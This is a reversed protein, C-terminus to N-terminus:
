SRAIEKDHPGASPAEDANRLVPTMAIGALAFTAGLCVWGITGNEIVLTSIVFPAVMQSFAFGTTFLGQYQGNQGSPALDISIVWGAASQIIEGYLHLGAAVLLLVGAGVGSVGNTLGTLVCTGLFLFGALRWSRRASDLTGIRRSASVQFLVCGVTNFLILVATMWHPASTYQVIWLPFGIDLMAFHIVMIMNVMTAAVYRRDRLVPLKSAGPKVPVAAIRPLAFLILGCILYSVANFGIVALYAGRTDVWIALGAIGSGIAVGLNGITRIQARALTADEGATLTSLVAQRAAYAGREIFTFVVAVATFQVFGDVVLFCVAALASLILLVAAVDRQGRRDALHGFPVGSLLGTAGAITLGVGLQGPTVGAFKTFYLASSAMFAGRGLLNFFVAIGLLRVSTSM